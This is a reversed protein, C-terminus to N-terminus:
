NGSNSLYCNLYNKKPKEHPKLRAGGLQLLGFFRRVKRIGEVLIILLSTASLSQNISDLLFM